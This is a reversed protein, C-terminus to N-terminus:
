NEELVKVSGELDSQKLFSEENNSELESMDEKNESEKFEADLNEKKNVRFSTHLKAKIAKRKLIVIAIIVVVICLFVLLGVKTKSIEESPKEDEVMMADDFQTMPVAM